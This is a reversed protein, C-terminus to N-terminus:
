KINEVCKKGGILREMMNRSFGDSRSGYYDLAYEISDGKAINESGWMPQINQYNFCLRQDDHNTLDFFACPAIHDLHWGRLGFNDWDMGDRFLEEVYARFREYSCGLLNETKEAKNEKTCFKQIRKRLMCKMRFQPDNYYRDMYRAQLEPTWQDRKKAREKAAWDFLEGGARLRGGHRAHLPKKWEREVIALQGAPLKSVDRGPNWEGWRELLTAVMKASTKPIGIKECIIVQGYGMRYLRIIEEKHDHINHKNSQAKWEDPDYGERRLWKEITTTHVGYQKRFKTLGSREGKEALIAAAIEPTVGDSQKTAWDSLSYGNKRVWYRLQDVGIGIKRALPALGLQQGKEAMVVAIQDQTPRWKKAVDGFRWFCLWRERLTLNPELRATAESLHSQFGSQISEQNPTESGDLGYRDVCVEYTM